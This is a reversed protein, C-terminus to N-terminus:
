RLECYELSGLPILASRRSGESERLTVVDEGVAVLEGSIHQGGALALVVPSRDEALLSLAGAMSLELSPFRSGSPPGKAPARETWVATVRDLRALVPRRGSRVLVCFDAGVAELTGALRAQGVCITVASRGEALDLLAGAWTASALAQERLSKERM